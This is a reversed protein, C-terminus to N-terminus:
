QCFDTSADWIKVTQDYSVSALLKSDHLFAIFWIWDSHSKLIQLIVNWDDEITLKTMVWEPKKQMFLEKMLSCASSFVLTSIYM